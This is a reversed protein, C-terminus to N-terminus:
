LFAKGPTLINLIRAVALVTYTSRSDTEGDRCVLYDPLFLDPSRCELSLLAPFMVPFLKIHWLNLYFICLSYHLALSLFACNNM